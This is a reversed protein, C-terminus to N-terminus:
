CISFIAQKGNVVNSSLPDESFPSELCKDLLKKERGYNGFLM